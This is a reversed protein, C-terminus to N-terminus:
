SRWDAAARDLVYAAVDHIQEETLKDKYASMSNKGNTVIAEVAEISDMGFKQLAKQKLTKNRRVINGGNVHCGVCRAEFVAAGNTLDAAIAPPILTLWLCIFALFINLPRSRLPVFSSVYFRKLRDIGPTLIGIFKNTKM